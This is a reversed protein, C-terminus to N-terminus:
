ENPTRDLAEQAMGMVLALCELTCGQEVDETHHAIRNLAHAYVVARAKWLEARAWEARTAKSAQLHASSTAHMSQIHAAGTAEPVGCVPCHLSAM